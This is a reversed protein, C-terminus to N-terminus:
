LEDNTGRLSMSHEERSDTLLEGVSLFRETCALVELFDEVPLNATDM